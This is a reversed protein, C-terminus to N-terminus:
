DNSRLRREAEQSSLGRINKFYGELRDAKESFSQCPVLQINATATRLETKYLGYGQHLEPITQNGFEKIWHRANVIWVLREASVRDIGQELLQYLFYAADKTMPRVLAFYKFVKTFPEFYIPMPDTRWPHEEDISNTNVIWYGNVEDAPGFKLEPKGLKLKVERYGSDYVERVSRAVNFPPLNRQFFGNRTQYEVPPHYTKEVKSGMSDLIVVKENNATKVEGYDARLWKNTGNCYGFWYILYPVDFERYLKHEIVDMEFCFALIGLTNPDDKDYESRYNPSRYHEPFEPACESVEQPISIEIEQPDIKEIDLLKLPDSVPEPPKNGKDSSYFFAVIGCLLVLAIWVFRRKM